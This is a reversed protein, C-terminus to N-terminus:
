GRVASSRIDSDTARSWFRRERGAKCLRSRKWRGRTPTPHKWRHVVRGSQAVATGVKDNQKVCHRHEPLGSVQMFGEAVKDNKRFALGGTQMFWQPHNDLICYFSPVRTRATVCTELGPLPTHNARSSREQVTKRCASILITTAEPSTLQREPLLGACRGVCRTRKCILRPSPAM